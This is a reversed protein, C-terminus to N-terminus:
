LANMALIIKWLTSVTEGVKIVFHIALIVCIGSGFSQDIVLHSM